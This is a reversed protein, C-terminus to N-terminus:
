KEYTVKGEVVLSDVIGIAAADLPAEDAAARAATGKVVLVVEGRGAGTLDVAAYPRGGDDESDAPDGPDIDRVLLIIRGSISDPKATSVVQGVVRAIRM